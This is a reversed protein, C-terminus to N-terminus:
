KSFWTMSSSIETMLCKSQNAPQKIGMQRHSSYFPGDSPNTSEKLFVVDRTSDTCCEVVCNEKKKTKQNKKKKVMIGFCYYYNDNYSSCKEMEVADFLCWVFQFLFRIFAEIGSLVVDGELPALSLCNVSCLPAHLSLLCSLSLALFPPLVLSLFFSLDIRKNEWSVHKLTMESM